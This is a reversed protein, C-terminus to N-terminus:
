VSLPVVIQMEHTIPVITLGPKRNSNKVLLSLIQKTTKPDLASTSEDSILNKALARAIAVRQQGGPLQPSLEALGM